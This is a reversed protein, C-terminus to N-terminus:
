LTLTNRSRSRPTLRCRRCFNSHFGDRVSEEEWLRLNNSQKEWRERTEERWRSRRGRKERRERERGKEPTDNHDVHGAPSGRVVSHTPPGTEEMGRERIKEEEGPGSRGRMRRERRKDSSIV